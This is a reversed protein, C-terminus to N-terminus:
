ALIDVKQGLASVSASPARSVPQPKKSPAATKDEALTKLTQGEREASQKLATVAFEYSRIGSIADM